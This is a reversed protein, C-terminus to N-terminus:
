KLECQRGTMDYVRGQYIIYVKDNYIIKQAKPTVNEEDSSITEAGTTVTSAEEVFVCQLYFRGATTGQTLECTYDSSLLDTVTGMETDHLLVYQLRTLYNNERLSFTYERDAGAYVTVPVRTEAISDPIAAFALKGCDLETYITAKGGTLSQKAVDYGTEYALEFKEPHTYISTEDLMRGKDDNIALQLWQTPVSANWARRPANLLLKTSFELYGNKPAQYYFPVAPYITSLVHQWYQGNDLLESVKLGEEPTDGLDQEFKGLLPSCLANWGENAAAFKEDSEAYHTHTVAVKTTKGADKLDVPFCFERYYQLNSYIEYGTTAAITTNGGAQQELLVWNSTTETNVPGNKGRLSESYSKLIWSKGYTCKSYDSLHTDEITSALPLAFQFYGSNDSVQRTYYTKTANITGSNELIAAAWPSTRLVLTDVTLTVDEEVKLEAHPAVYIRNVTTNASVTLTGSHVYIISTVKADSLTASADYIHPVIYKQRSEVGNTGQLKIVVYDDKQHEGHRVLKLTRDTERNDKTYSDSGKKITWATGGNVAKLGNANVIIHENTWDVIDLMNGYFRESSTNYTAEFTNNGKDAWSAFEYVYDEDEWQQPSPKNAETSIVSTESGTAPNIYTYTHLQTWKAWFDKDGYESAAISTVADGTLESNAYWGGFEYGERSVANPLTAGVGFTYETVNGSNITGENTHLTITYTGPVFTAAITADASLIHTNGSTFAEGNVTLTSLQYGEAPTATITLITRHPINATTATASLSQAANAITITGHTQATITATHTLMGDTVAVHWYDCGTETNNFETPVITVGNDGVVYKQFDTARTIAYGSGDEKYISHDGSWSANNAIQWAEFGDFAMTQATYFNDTGPVLTWAELGTNTNYTPHGIRYYIKDGWDAIVSKDFYINKGAPQDAVPYTIAITPNNKYAYNITFTYDGTMGATVNVDGGTGNLAFAGETRTVTKDNLGFWGGTNDKLKFQYTKDATLAVTANSGTNAGTNTFDLTKWGNSAGNNIYLQWVRVWVGDEDDLQATCTGNTVACNYQLANAAAVTVSYSASTAGSINAWASGNWKKWQYKADTAINDGSVTLTMTEGACFDWKNGDSTITLNSPSVCTWTAKFSKTSAPMTEVMAPSWASFEYGTRTATPATITAGFKVSGSTYTGSLSGGNADWTLEYSNRTYYYKIVMSGDAAITNTQTSPATFGTYSKVAPTVEAGTTGKLNQTEFPEAPYNDDDINQQYHEVTYPTTTSATWLAYLTIDSTYATAALSTLKTVACEADIYWGKFVYGVKTPNVLPTATGYTHTTPHDTGHVGSFVAGNQDLYTINYVNPTWNAYLTIAATYGTASLSTVKGTSCDQSTYYGEFTYGTRTPSDLATATGYTHTTPYGDEHTGNFAANDKNKYTISYTNPTFRAYAYIAFNIVTSASFQTGGTTYTTFWGDFSYNDKTAVPLTGITNGKKVITYPTECTGGNTTADWTVKYGEAVEYLYPSQGALNFVHYNTACNAALDTDHVYYGGTISTTGASVNLEKNRGQFRGNNVIVSASSNTICVAYVDTGTGADTYDATYTGSNITFSAPSDSFLAYCNGTGTLTATVAVNSLTATGKTYIGRVYGTGSAKVTGGTMTLECNSNYIYMGYAYTGARKAEVTGASMSISANNENKSYIGCARNGTANTSYNNEAYISGGQIDLSGAVLNIGSLYVNSSAIHEIKGGTGNDQITITKGSADIKFVGIVGTKNSTITKGSLDITMAASILIESTVSANQMMTVTPNTLANAATIASAVTAYYTTPVGEADVKAVAQTWQATYTTAVAPMKAAPTVDWGGFIYGARTVTPATIVDDYKVTTNPSGTADVAAGTGAVTVKGGALAWTLKYSNRTYQYTIVLSGDALITKTQASPSKFGTYDKRDPTVSAATTGTLNDTDDPTTNYTGDINQKYHKVTYATNTNPTWNAYVTYAAAVDAPVATIKGSSCDAVSYWGEFTYGTKTPNVLTTATGYTHTTPYGSGHTGTFTANNKDKYTIAYARPTKTYVATYTAGGVAVPGVTPEWHDFTFTYQATQPRSPNAPITPNAELAYDKTSHIKEVCDDAGDNQGWCDSKFVVKYKITTQKYKAVYTVDKTVTALTKTWGTWEYSYADTSERYPDDHLTTPYKAVTGYSILTDVLFSMDYDVFTVTYKRPSGTFVATYTAAATVAPLSAGAAYGQWNSFTFVQSATPDKVLKEEPCVPITGAEFMETHIVKGADNKFTILYEYKNEQIHATYTINGTVRPLVSDRHHFNGQPDDWGTWAYTALSTNAPVKPSASSYHPSTNYIVNSYTALASGDYNKWTVTVTRPKWYGASADWYYYGGYNDYRDQNAVYDGAYTGSTVKDAEWWVCGATTVKKEAFIFKRSGTESHYANDDSNAVVAVIDSPHALDHTGTGDTKTLLCGNEKVNVWMYDMYTYADGAVTGATSTYPTALTENKLKASEFSITKTSCNTNVVHKITTNTGANAVFRVVGADDNTSHINAGHETTYYWGETTGQVDIEADPLPTKTPPYQATRPNSTWSPSYTANYYWRSTATADGNMFGPWDENDIVFLRKGSSVTLKGLKSIIIQAGPILMADQTVTFEGENIYITMNNSIPLYYDKSDVSTGVTFTFQGLKAGSNMTWIGRDTAPDYEKRVWTDESADAPDLLFMSSTTGLLKIDNAPVDGYGTNVGSYGLLQSGPRFLIPAEVNQIFYDTVPFAHWTNRNSIMSSTATGGRWYGLQFGERVTSGSLATIEGKGTTYGWCNFMSGSELTIKSGEVLHLRGYNGTPAGTIASGGNAENQQATTEIAGYVTMNVGKDFTLMVLQVPSPNGTVRSPTNGVAKKQTLSNPVVLTAKSPLVYNGKPLTHNGVMIIHYTNNQNANVFQLAEKLTKYGGVDTTGNQYVRCVVAGSAASSITYRYGETYEPSPSVVDNINLGEYVYKSLNTNVNYYGGKLVVYNMQGNGDVAGDTGGTASGSFKGANVTCEPRGVVSGAVQVQQATVGIGYATTGTATATYKGNNIVATAANAYNGLRYASIDTPTTAPATIARKTANLFLAYATNGSTANATVDNGAELVFNGHRDQGNKTNIDVQGYLGYASATANVTIKTNKVTVKTDNAAIAQIGYGTTTKPTVTIDCGDVLTKGQTYIGNATITGNTAVTIETNKVTLEPIAISDLMLDQSGIAYIGYATTTAATAKITCGNITAKGAIAIGVSDRGQVLCPFVRKYIAAYNSKDAAWTSTYSTSDKLFQAWNHLKNTANVSVGRAETGTRTTATIDCNNLVLEGAYAVGTQAANNTPISCDAVAGFASGTASATIKVGSATLKGSLAYLGYATTGGAYAEFEGGDITTIGGSSVARATTNTGSTTAKFTGGHIILTAFGEVNSGPKREAVVNTEPDYVTVSRTATCAAYANTTGTTATYTGSNITLTAGGAYEGYYNPQANKFVTTASSGAYVAYATTYTQTTANIECDTLEMRAFYIAGHTGNVGGTAQLGYAYYYKATADIKTDKIKIVDYKNTKSQYSGYAIVGYAYRGLTSVNITANEITGTAAAKNAHSGDTATATGMAANSCDFLIGYAYRTDNKDFTCTSNITGGKMTLTGYYCNAATTSASATLNIGRSNTYTATVDITGDNINVKGIAQIGYVNQYGLAVIEGGNMTFTTKNNKNNLQYIAYSDNYGWIEARGGNMTVTTGAQNYIACAKRGSAGKNEAYLTGSELILNGAAVNALYACGAYANNINQIKGGTKSDKITITKGSKNVYIISGNYTATLVKGNLDLTFTNTVTQNANLSGGTIDRLVQLTCGANAATNAKTWATAWDGQYILTTGDAAIVKADDTAEVEAVGTVTVSSVLGGASTIKLDVKTTDAVGNPNFKYDVTVKCTGASFNPEIVPDGDLTFAGPGSVPTFTPATPFDDEAGYNFNFVATGGRTADNQTTYVTDATVSTLELAPFNATVTCSKVGSGAAKSQLSVTTSNNRNAGGYTGGGNFKGTAVVNTGEIGWNTITFKGDTTEPSKNFDKLKKMNSTGFTVTFSYDASPDTPALDKSTPSVSNVMVSVFTATATHPETGGNSTSAALSVNGNLISDTAMSTTIAGSLSVNYGWNIDTWYYFKVAGGSTSTESSKVATNPNATGPKTGSNAVYVSGAGTTVGAPSIKLSAYYKAGWANGIGLSFLLVVLAAYKWVNTVIQLGKTKM